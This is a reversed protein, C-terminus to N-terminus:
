VLRWAILLAVLGAVLLIGMSRLYAVLNSNNYKTAKLSIIMGNVIDIELNNIEETKLLTAAGRNDNGMIITFAKSMILVVVGLGSCFLLCALSFVFIWGSGDFSPNMVIIQVFLVSAFAVLIGISQLISNQRDSALGLQRGIDEKIISLSIRKWKEASNEALDNTEKEVGGADEQHQREAVTEDVPEVNNM